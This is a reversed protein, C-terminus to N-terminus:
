LSPDDVVLSLPHGRGAINEIWQLRDARKRRCSQQKGHHVREDHLKPSLRSV